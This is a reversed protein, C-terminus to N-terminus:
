RSVSRRPRTAPRLSVLAARAGESHGSSRLRSVRLLWPVRWPWPENQETRTDTSNMADEAHRHLLDTLEREVNRTSM